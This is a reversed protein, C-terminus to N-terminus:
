CHTLKSSFSANSASQVVNNAGSKEVLNGSIDKISFGSESGTQVSSVTLRVSEGEGVSMVEATLGLNSREIARAMKKLSVEVGSGPEVFTSVRKSEDGKTIEFFQRGSDLATVNERPIEKGENRQVQALQDVKLEFRGLSRGASAKVRAVKPNNTSEKRSQFTKESTRVNESAAKLERVRVTLKSLSKQFSNGSAKLAAPSKLNQAIAVKAKMEVPSPLRSGAIKKGTAKRANALSADASIRQPGLTQAITLMTQKGVPSFGVRLAELPFHLVALDIPNM